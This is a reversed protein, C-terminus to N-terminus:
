AEIESCLFTLKAYKRNGMRKLTLTVNIQTVELPLLKGTAGDFHIELRKAASCIEGGHLTAHGHM